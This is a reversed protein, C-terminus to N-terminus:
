RLDGFHIKSLLHVLLSIYVTFSLLVSYVCTNDELSNFTSLRKFMVFLLNFTKKEFTLSIYHLVKSLM